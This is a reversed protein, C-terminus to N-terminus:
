AGKELLTKQKSLVHTEASLENGLTLYSGQFPDGVELLLIVLLKLSNLLPTHTHTHTHTHTYVFMYVCIYLKPCTEERLM